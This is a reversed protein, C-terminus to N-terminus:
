ARVGLIQIRTGVGFGTSQNISIKAGEITGKSIAFSLNSKSASTTSFEVNAFSNLNNACAGSVFALGAATEIEFIARGKKNATNPIATSLYCSRAYNSTEASILDLIINGSATYFSDSNDTDVLIKARKLSFAQGNTDQSITVNVITETLTIDAITEWVESGGSVNAIAEDLEERSVADILGAIENKDEDTLIYSDGTDGKDGKLAPVEIINGDKDRIKLLAM